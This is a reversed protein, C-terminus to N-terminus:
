KEELKSQGFIGIYVGGAMTLILMNNSNLGLHGRSIELKWEGVLM